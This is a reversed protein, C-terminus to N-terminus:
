TSHLRRQVDCVLRMLFGIKSQTSVQSTSPKSELQPSASLNNDKAFSTLESMFEDGTDFVLAFTKQGREEHIQKARM